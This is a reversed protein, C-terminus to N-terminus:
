RWTCAGVVWFFMDSDNGVLDSEEFLGIRIEVALNEDFMVYLLGM